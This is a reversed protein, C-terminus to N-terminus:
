FELIAIVGVRQEPRSLDSAGAAAVMGRGCAIGALLFYKGTYKM